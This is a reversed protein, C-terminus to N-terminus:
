EDREEYREKWFREIEKLDKVMKRLDDHYGTVETSVPIHNLIFITKQIEGLAQLAIAKDNEEERM